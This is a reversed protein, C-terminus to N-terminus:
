IHKYRGASQMCFANAANWMYIIYQLDDHTVDSLEAASFIQAMCCCSSGSM